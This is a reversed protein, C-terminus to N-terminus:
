ESAGHTREQACTRLRLSREPWERCPRGRSSHPSRRAAIILGHFALREGFRVRVQAVGGLCCPLQNAADGTRRRDLGSFGHLLNFCPDPM